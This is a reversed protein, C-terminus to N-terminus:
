TLSFGQKPVVIVVSSVIKDALTQRNKDWIPFFWGVYCIISDAFHCISRLFGMGGGITQGTTASVCKLGMMRMGPSQGTMGVQVSFWIGGAAGVLYLLIGLIAVKAVILIIGLIIPVLLFAFDLLYGGVRPGWEALQVQQNNPGIAMGGYSPVSTMPAATATTPKGCSPCTQMGAEISAGCQGCFAM